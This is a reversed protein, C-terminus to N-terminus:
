FFSHSKDKIYLVYMPRYIYGAEPLIFVSEYTRSMDEINDTTVDRVRFAVEIELNLAQQPTPCLILSNAWLVMKGRCAVSYVLCNKGQILYMEEVLHKFAIRRGHNGKKNTSAEIPAIPPKLM